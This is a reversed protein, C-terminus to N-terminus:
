DKTERMEGIARFVLFHKEVSMAMQLFEWFSFFRHSFFTRAIIQGFILSEIQGHSAAPTRIAFINM